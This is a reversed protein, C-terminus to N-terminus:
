MNVFITIKLTDNSVNLDVAGVRHIEHWFSYVKENKGTTLFSSCMLGFNLM